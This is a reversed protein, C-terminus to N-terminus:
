LVVTYERDIGDKTELIIEVSAVTPYALTETVDENFMLDMYSRQWYQGAKKEPVRRPDPIDAHVYLNSQALTVGVFDQFLASKVLRANDFGNPGRFELTVRWTRTYETELTVSADDLPLQDENRVEDYDSNETVCMLFLVDDDIGYAPQGTKSWSIRVATNALPDTLLFTKLGSLTAAASLTLTYTGDLNDVVGAITTDAPIGPGNIEQDIEAGYSADPITDSTATITGSVPFDCALGLCGCLVAQMAADMQDETLASSTLVLGNAFTRTTM